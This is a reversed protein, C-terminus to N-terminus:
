RLTEWESFTFVKVHSPFNGRQIKKGEVLGFRLCDEIMDMHESGSLVALDMFYSSPSFLLNILKVKFTKVESKIGSIELRNDLSTIHSILEGM